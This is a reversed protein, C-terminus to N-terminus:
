TSAPAREVIGRLARIVERNSWAVDDERQRSVRRPFDNRSQRLQGSMRCEHGINAAGLLKHNLGGFRCSHSWTEDARMWQGAIM